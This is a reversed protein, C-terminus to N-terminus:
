VVIRLYQMSMGYWVVGCVGLLVTWDVQGVKAEEEVCM